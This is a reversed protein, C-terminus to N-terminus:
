APLVADSLRRKLAPMGRLEPDRELADRAADQAAKLLEPNTLGGVSVEFGSQRTGLLDGPGRLKLDLEALDFGSETKTM